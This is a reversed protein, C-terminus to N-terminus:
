QVPLLACSAKSFAIGLSNMTFMAPVFSVKEEYDGAPERPVCGDGSRTLSVRAAITGSCALPDHLRMPPPGTEVCPCLRGLVDDYPQALRPHEDLSRPLFEALCSGVARKHALRLGSLCM